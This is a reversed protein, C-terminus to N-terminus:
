AGFGTEDKTKSVLMTSTIRQNRFIRLNIKKWIEGSVLMAFSDM